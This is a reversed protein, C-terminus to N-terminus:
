TIIVLHVNNELCLNQMVLELNTLLLSSFAPVSLCLSCLFTSIKVVQLFYASFLWSPCLRVFSGRHFVVHIARQAVSEGTRYVVDMFLINFSTDDVRAQM